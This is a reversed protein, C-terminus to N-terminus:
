VKVAEVADDPVVQSLLAILRDMFTHPPKSLFMLHENLIPVVGRKVEDSEITLYSHARYPAHGVLTLIDYGFRSGFYYHSLMDWRLTVGAAEVGFRTIRNEVRPPPTIAFVYFLFMLAWVPLLTILDGFLVVFVSLILSLALFFRLLSSSRKKYPRLPATWSYLVQENGHDEM